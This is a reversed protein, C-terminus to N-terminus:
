VRGAAGGPTLRVVAQDEFRLDISEARSGSERVDQLVMALRELTSENLAGSGVRIEAGDAVTYIVLGSGPAIRLESMEMWLEHSVRRARELTGLAAALQENDVREGAVLECELGTVVPLDVFASREARPLVILDDSVEVTGSATDVLALPSREVLRILVRDPLLRMAQAREVRPSRMVAREVEPVDVGLLSEGETLGCLAQVEATTLVVTGRVDVREVRFEEAGRGWGPALAIVLGIGGALLVASSVIAVRRL